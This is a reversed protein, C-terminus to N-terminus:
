SSRARDTRPQESHVHLHARAHTCCSTVSSSGVWILLQLL